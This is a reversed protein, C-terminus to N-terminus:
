LRGINLNSDVPLDWLKRREVGKKQAFRKSDCESCVHYYQNDLRRHDMLSLSREFQNSCVDCELIVWTSSRNYTHVKGSKSKRTYETEVQKTKIYM